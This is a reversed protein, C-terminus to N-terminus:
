GRTLRIVDVPRITDAEGDGAADVSLVTRHLAQRAQSAALNARQQQSADDPQAAAAHALVHAITRLVILKTLPAADVISSEEVGLGQLLQSRQLDIMRAFTIIKLQGDTANGPPIQDDEISARPLSVELTTAGTRSVIEVAVTDNIVAVLGTDIGRAAFDSGDSALETGIIAADDALLLVTGALAPAGIFISPDVTLLDRDPITLM